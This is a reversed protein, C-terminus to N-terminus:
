LQPRLREILLTKGEGPNGTVIIQKKAEADELLYGDVGLEVHIAELEDQSLRDAYSKTSRYLRESFTSDETESAAIRYAIVGDGAAGSARRRAQARASSITSAARTPM